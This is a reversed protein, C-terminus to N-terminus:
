LTDFARFAQISEYIEGRRSGLHELSDDVSETTIHAVYKPLLVGFCYRKNDFSPGLLCSASIGGPRARDLVLSHTM